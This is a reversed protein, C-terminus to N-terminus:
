QNSFGYRGFIQADNRSSRHKCLERIMEPSATENLSLKRLMALRENDMLLWPIAGSESVISSEYRTTRNLGLAIQVCNMIRALIEM